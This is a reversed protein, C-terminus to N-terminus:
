EEEELRFEDGLKDGLGLGIPEVGDCLAKGPILGFPAGGGGGELLGLTGFELGRSPERRPCADGPGVCGVDFGGGGGLGLDAGGGTGWFLLLKCEEVKRFGGDLAVDLLKL